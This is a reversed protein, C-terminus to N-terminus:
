KDNLQKQNISHLEAFLRLVEREEGFYGSTRGLEENKEQSAVRALRNWPCKNDDFDLNVKQTNEAHTNNNNKKLSNNMSNILNHSSIVLAFFFLTNNKM